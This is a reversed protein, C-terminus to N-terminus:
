KSSPVKTLTYGLTDQEHKLQKMLRINRQKKYLFEDRADRKKLAEVYVPNAREVWKRDVNNKQVSTPFSQDHFRNKVTQRQKRLEKLHLEAAVNKNHRKQEHPEKHQVFM